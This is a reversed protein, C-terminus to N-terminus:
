CGRPRPLLSVRRAAAARPDYLRAKVLEFPTVAASELYGTLFGAVPATRVTLEGSGAV